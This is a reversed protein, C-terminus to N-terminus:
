SGKGGGADNGSLKRAARLVKPSVWFAKASRSRTSGVVRRFHSCPLARGFLPERFIRCIYKYIAYNIAGNDAILGDLIQQRAREGHEATISEECRKQIAALGHKFANM